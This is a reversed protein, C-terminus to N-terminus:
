AAAEAAVAPVFTCCDVPYTQKYAPGGRVSDVMLVYSRGDRSQGVITGTRKPWTPVRVVVRQGVCKCATRNM